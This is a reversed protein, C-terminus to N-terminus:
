GGGNDNGAGGGGPSRHGGGTPGPPAGGGDDPPPTEDGTNEGPADDGGPTEDPPALGSVEAVTQMVLPLLQSIDFGEAKEIRDTLKDLFENAKKLGEVMEEVQAASLADPLQIKWGGEERKVRMPPAGDAGAGMPVGPLASPQFTVSANEGDVVDVKFLAEPTINAAGLLPLLKSLTLEPQGLKNGITKVLQDLKTYSDILPSTDKKLEAVQEANFADLGADFDGALFATLMGGLMQRVDTEVDGTGAALSSGGAASLGAVRPVAAPQYTTLDEGIGKDITVNGIAAPAPGDPAESSSGCGVPAAALAACLLLRTITM